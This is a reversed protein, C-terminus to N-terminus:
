ANYNTAKTRLLVYVKHLCGIALILRGIARRSQAVDAEESLPMSMAISIYNAPLLGDGAVQGVFAM